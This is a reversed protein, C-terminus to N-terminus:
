SDWVRPLPAAEPAWPELSPLEPEAAEAVSASCALELAAAQVPMATETATGTNRGM